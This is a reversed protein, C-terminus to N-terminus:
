CMQKKVSRSADFLNCLDFVFVCVCVCVCEQTDGATDKNTNNM